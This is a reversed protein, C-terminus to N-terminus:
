DDCECNYGCTAFLGVTINDVCLKNMKSSQQTCTGTVTYAITQPTSNTPTTYTVTCRGSIAGDDGGRINRLQMRSLVDQGAFKIDDVNKM